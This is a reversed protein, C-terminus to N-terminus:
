ISSLESDYKGGKGITIKIGFYWASFVQWFWFSLLTLICQLTELFYQQKGKENASYFVSHNVKMKEFYNVVIVNQSFSIGPLAWTIIPPPTKVFLVFAQMKLVYFGGTSWYFISRENVQEITKNSTHTTSKCGHLDKTGIDVPLLFFLFLFFSYSFPFM